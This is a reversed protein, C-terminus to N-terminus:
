GREAVGDEVVGQLRRMPGYLEVLRDFEQADYWRCAGAGYAKAAEICFRVASEVSALTAPGTGSGPVVTETTIAVGVVPASTATAAAPDLERPLYGNGYPTIDQM